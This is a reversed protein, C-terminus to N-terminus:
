VFMQRHVSLVNGSNMLFNSAYNDNLANFHNVVHSDAAIRVVVVVYILWGDHEMIFDM